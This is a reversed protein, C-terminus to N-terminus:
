ANGKSTSNLSSRKSAHHGPDVVASATEPLVSALLDDWQLVTDRPLNRRARMGIVKEAQGPEIGTGPRKYALMWPEITEYARVDVSTVVSRRSLTRNDAEARAPRKRGDGLSAEIKRLNRILATLEECDMSLKHDPGPANKDLTFHKEILVAGLCAAALAYMADQSHDSFGVPLDFHNSLTQIARLNLSDGSAPYASVCHLLLLEGSGASKLTWIAEAIESLYCMGTSLLVPKGKGGIHKLLPIHTVDSSAVKFAPVGLRDLFDVSGEDFPTSLFIVGREDAHRKLETHDEETLEFRRFMQYASEGDIDQHAFRLRGPIMLRDAHFSQFKVADAGCEAAGDILKLGERVSGGHNIGIEAVVFVRGPGIVKDGILIDQTKM